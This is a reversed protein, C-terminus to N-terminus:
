LLYGLSYLVLSGGSSVEVFEGEEVCRRLYKTSLVWKGKAIATLIKETRVVKNTIVHTTSETVKQQLEGGLSTVIESYEELEPVSLQALVVQPTRTEELTSGNPDTSNELRKRAETEDPDNWGINTSQTGPLVDMTGVALSSRKGGVSKRKQMLSYGVAGMQEQSELSGAQTDTDAALRELEALEREVQSRDDMTDNEAIPSAQKPLSQKRTSLQPNITIEEDDIDISPAKRVSKPSNSSKETLITLNRNPNYCYPYCSEDAQANERLCANLWESHVIFKRAEKATRYEKNFCDNEKGEYLVHTVQNTYMNRLQGGLTAIKDRLEKKLPDLRRTIYIVCSSLPLDAEIRNETEETKADDAEEYGLVQAINGSMSKYFEKGEEEKLKQRKANRHYENNAYSQAARKFAKRTSKSPNDEWTCGYPTEPTPMNDLSTRRRPTPYM